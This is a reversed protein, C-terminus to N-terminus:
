YISERTNVETAPTTTAVAITAQPEPEASVVAGLERSPAVLEFSASARRFASAL